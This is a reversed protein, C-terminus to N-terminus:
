SGPAGNTKDDRGKADLIVKMINDNFAKLDGLASEMADEAKRVGELKLVSEIYAREEAFQQMLMRGRESENLLEQRLRSVNDGKQRWKDILELWRKEQSSSAKLRQEAEERNAKISKLLNEVETMLESNRQYPALAAEGQAKVDDLVKRAAEPSSAQKISNRLAEYKESMSAALQRANELLKTYKPAAAEAAAPEAGARDGAAGTLGLLVSIVLISTRM